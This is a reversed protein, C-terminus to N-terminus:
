ISFFLCYGKDILYFFMKKIFNQQEFGTFMLPMGWGKISQQTIAVYFLTCSINEYM